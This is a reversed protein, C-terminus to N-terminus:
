ISKVIYKKILLVVVLIFPLILQLPIHLYAPVIKLGINLHQIINKSFFFTFLLTLVTSALIHKNRKVNPFLHALINLGGFMFISVKIFGGILNIVVALIELHPLFESISTLELAKVFPFVYLNVTESNLLGLIMEAAAILLFGTLCVSIWGYKRLAKVNNVYPFIMTFVILEGYPFTLGTPFVSALIQKWDTRFVPTLNNLEFYPSLYGFIMLFLIIVITFASLILSSRATDEIGVFCSYLVVLLFTFTIIWFPVDNFLVQGIFFSFDKIVRGAIYLFYLCYIFGLLKSIWKGFGLEFLQILNGWKGLSHLLIYFYFIGVGLGLSILIFIWIDKKTEFNWGVVIASGLLFNIMLSLIEMAALKIMM